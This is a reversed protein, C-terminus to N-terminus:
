PREWQFLNPNWIQIEQNTFVPQLFVRLTRNGEQLVTQKIGAQVALFSYNKAFIESIEPTAAPCPHTGRHDFTFSIAKFLDGSNIQKQGAILLIDVLDKVRSPEGSAYVRTLAHYKEAIQQTISYGPIIAPKIGAFELYDASEIMEPPQLLIDSTSIDLHFEDFKRSDLIATVNYRDSMGFEHGSPEPKSIEFQFCDELEIRGAQILHRHIDFEKQTFLLDIDKTSRAKEQFILEMLYGGKVVWEEPCDILLRALLRDFSILKRYRSIPIESNKSLTLLHDELARRFANSTAYKM